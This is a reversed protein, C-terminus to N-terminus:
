NRSFYFRFIERLFLNRATKLPIFHPWARASWRRSSPFPMPKSGTEAGAGFSHQWKTAVTNGNKNGTIGNLSLSTVSTALKQLHYTNWRNKWGCRWHSRCSRIYKGGPGNRSCAELSIRNWRFCRLVLTMSSFPQRCVVKAPNSQWVQM